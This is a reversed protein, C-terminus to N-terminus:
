LEGALQEIFAVSETLGLAQTRIMTHRRMLVSVEDPKSVLLSTGQGELYVLPTHEPTEIVKMAGRLGAHGTRDLPMVQLVVNPRAACEILYRYQEKTVTSGGIRQRLAAEELVVHVVAVPRRDFLVKRAMRAEVLKEVEEEDLPPFDCRFLERAYSETQLLGELVQPCYSSVSLAEAELQVFGQFYAPYRELRLYKSAAAILGGADLAEEARAIFENTAPRACTEVSSVAAGTYNMRSGLEDQTLGARERLKRLVEAFYQTAPSATEKNKALPM